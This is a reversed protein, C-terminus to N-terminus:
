LSMQHIKIKSIKNKLALIEVTDKQKNRNIILNEVEQSMILINEKRDEFTDLLQIMDTLTLRQQNNQKRKKQIGIVNEQKEM